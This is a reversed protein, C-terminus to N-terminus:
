QRWRRRGWRILPVGLLWVVAVAYLLWKGQTLLSALGVDSARLGDCQMPLLGLMLNEAADVTPALLAPVGGLPVRWAMAWGLLGALAALPFWAEARRFTTYAAVAASVDNAPTVVPAAPRSDCAAADSSGWAACMDCADYGTLHKDFVAQGTAQAFAQQSPARWLHIGLMGVVGALVLAWGILKWRRAWPAPNRRRTVLDRPM